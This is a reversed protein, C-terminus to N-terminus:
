HEFEPPKACVLTMVVPSVSMVWGLWMTDFQTFRYLAVVMVLWGMALTYALWLNTKHTHFRDLMLWRTLTYATLFVGVAVAMCVAVYSDTLTDHMNQTLAHASPNRDALYQEIRNTAVELSAGLAALSAFIFFHGYGFVFSIKNRLQHLSNAWEVEFYLWWIAFILGLVGLGFVGIAAWDSPSNVTTALANTTGLICEGLVIITLLGYREAIHHAHWPTSGKREAIVPVAMEIAWGLVLTPLLWPEPLWLRVIWFVQVLSIGVAYRLCTQRRQNDQKAARLWQTALALRMIVYGLVAVVTRANDTAFQAVGVAMVLAGFMQLMTLLRFWRDDTDYASAFWSYNLWAWFIAFFSFAFQAIGSWIHHQSLAHHLESATAAIAVVFVLDFLLELPTSVRHSEHIDRGNMRQNPRFAFMFFGM